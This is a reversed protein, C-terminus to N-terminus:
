WNQRLPTSRAVVSSSAPQEIIPTCPCSSECTCGDRRSSLQHTDLRASTIAGRAAPRRQLVKSQLTGSSPSTSSHKRGVEFFEQGDEVAPFNSVEQNAAIGDRKM